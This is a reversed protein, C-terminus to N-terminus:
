KLEELKFIKWDDDPETAKIYDLTTTADEDSGYFIECNHIMYCGIAGGKYYHGICYNFKENNQVLAGVGNM